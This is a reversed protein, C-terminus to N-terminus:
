IDWNCIMKSVYGHKDGAKPMAKKEEENNNNRDCFLNKKRTDLICGGCQRGNAGCKKRWKEASALLFTGSVATGGALRASGQFMAKNILM